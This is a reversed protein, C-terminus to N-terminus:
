GLKKKLEEESLAKHFLIYASYDNHLQFTVRAVKGRLSFTPNKDDRNCMLSLYLNKALLARATERKSSKFDFCCGQAHVETLGGKFYTDTKKGEKSLLHATVRGDVHYSNCEKEEQQRRAEIASIHGINTCFRNLNEYLGPFDQHWRDTASNELYRLHVETNSVVSASCLSITTFTYEGLMDGRGLQAIVKNKKGKESVVTVTGQEIFYLRTNYKEQTLIRKKAPVVIKKLSYFLCNTEEENLGQYLNGWIALHDRDLGSTKEKEIVDASRIIETLATPDREILKERLAEAKEFDKNGALKEIEFFLQQVDESM